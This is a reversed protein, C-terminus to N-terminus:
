RSGWATELQAKILLIETEHTTCTKQWREDDSTAARLASLTVICVGDGHRLPGGDAVRIAIRPSRAARTGVAFDILGLGPQPLIEVFAESGDFLSVGRFVGGGVPALGMSGLSWGGIFEAESLRAFAFEAPVAARASVAHAITSRHPM